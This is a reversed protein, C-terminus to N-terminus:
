ITKAIVRMPTMPTELIAGAKGRIAPARSSEERLHPKKEGEKGDRSDSEGRVETKKGVPETAFPDNYGSEGEIGDGSGAASQGGCEGEQQEQM